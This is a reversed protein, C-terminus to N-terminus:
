KVPIGYNKLIDKAKSIEEDSPLTKPLTDEIGLAAYKSAAYNHYPLVRVGTINKLNSLFKRM